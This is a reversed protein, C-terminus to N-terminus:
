LIYVYMHNVQQLNDAAFFQAIYEVLGLPMRKIPFHSDSQDPRITGFVKPLITCYMQAVVM